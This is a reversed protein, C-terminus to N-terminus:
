ALLAKAGLKILQNAVDRGISIADDIPGQACATVSRATNLNGVIANLHLTNTDTTTAHAGIPSHCDGQLIRNVTQEAIIQQQSIPDNLQNILSILEAKHDLCEIGLAGQGIAPIFTDIALTQQILHAKNLRQMGCASLIIADYQKAELKALRTNVNGRIGKIVIDPCRKQLLLTRRPSGTGIIAGAPLSDITWNHPTILADNAINRPLIAAVILSSPQHVSMDKICHVAIDAENALLSKQLTKVFVQKGGLQNITASTNMDGDSLMGKINITIHPAIKILKSKVHHAQWLAMPSNRTAITIEKLM